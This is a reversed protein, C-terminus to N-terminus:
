SAAQEVSGQPTGAQEGDARQERKRRQAEADARERLGTLGAAPGSV